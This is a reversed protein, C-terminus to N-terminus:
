HHVPVASTMAQRRLPCDPCPRWLRISPGNFLDVVSILIGFWPHAALSIRKWQWTDPILSIRASTLHHFQESWRPSQARSSTKLDSRVFLSSITGIEASNNFIRTQGLHLPSKIRVGDSSPNIHSGQPNIYSILSSMGIISISSAFGTEDM